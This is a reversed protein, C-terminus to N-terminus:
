FSNGITFQFQIPKEGSQRALPIGWEFRLPGMPSWWRFGFGVSQRIRWLDVRDVVNFENEPSPAQGLNRELNWANGGDTFVVGRIGASELIVFEVELQYFAQLNGGIPVGGTFIELDPNFSSSVVARPGLANFNFGRVNYIGGLFYREYIPVGRNARATILGAEVNARLIFPGWLRRYARFFANQRFYTNQSGFIPDAMEASYSAYLGRTPRMRNDRSDWTLGFRMSSTFGSLFRNALPLQSFARFAQAGTAGGFGGTSAGISVEEARYGINFRFRRDWIPHGFGFGGGTSTRAFVSTQRSTRAVDASLSWMTGLFWPEVFSIQALQRIGSLQLNLSLAHGRGFLNQQDIQATLIFQELSSFGAGVQFTGTPRERVEVNLVIRGPASGPSESFDVGEFYGLAMINYRSRELLTQNYRMGELLLIERRIVRDRTKTNGSIEIREIFAVPGRQIHIDLDVIRRASDVDTEPALEANAYGADRYNRTLSQLGEVLKTRNFWDGGEVGLGEMIEARPVLTEVENGEDDVETVNIRGIRFRPGEEIPITIDVFRRDASLEVRPRGVSMGLYGQDYYYAQLRTVDDEFASQQYNDNSTLFALFSTEHTEMVGRLDSSEVHENGVFRISRVVTEEGEVIRFVVDVENNDNDRARLEYDVRALFYGEEAYKDRIKQLQQRVAPISVIAGDTLDVVEDLDEDNVEDNGDFEVSAITPRETLTFVIQVGDATPRAEVVIDDFLDQNWLTRADRAVDDDSCVAGVRLRMEGLVDDPDVRHVGEISIGRIVKGHCISRPMASPVDPAAEEGEEGEATPTAPSAPAAPEAPAAPSESPADAPAEEGTQARADTALYWGALIAFTLAFFRRTLM